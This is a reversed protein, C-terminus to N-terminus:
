EKNYLKKTQYTRFRYNTNNKIIIAKIWYRIRTKILIAIMISQFNIWHGM